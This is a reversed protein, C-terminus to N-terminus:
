ISHGRHIGIKLILDETIGQNFEEIDRLMEIAAKAADAPNLFTAMVADGITKVVAGCNQAIVRNLTDFHQRVLYYAKADGVREYLATSSKLDTFLFTIDKVGIGEDAQIVESRFLNRFTQTTLLQKGSLFPRFQVGQMDPDPPYNRIWLPTPAETRN